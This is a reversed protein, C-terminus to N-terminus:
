PDRATASIQAPKVTNQEWIQEWIQRGSPQEASGRRLRHREPIM